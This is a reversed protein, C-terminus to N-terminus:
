AVVSQETRALPDDGDFADGALPVTRRRHPADPDLGVGDVDDRAERLEAEVQAVGSRRSAVRGPPLDAVLQVADGAVVPEVEFDAGGVDGRFRGARRAQLCCDGCADAGCSCAVLRGSIRTLALRLRLVSM